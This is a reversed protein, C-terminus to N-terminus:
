FIFYLFKTNKNPFEKWLLVVFTELNNVKKLFYKDTSHVGNILLEFKGWYQFAM